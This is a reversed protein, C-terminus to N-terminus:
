RYVRPIRLLVIASPTMGSLAALVLATAHRIQTWDNTSLVLLSLKRDTWNQQYQFGRDSTIVLDFGLMRRLM